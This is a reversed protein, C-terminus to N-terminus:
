TSSSIYTRSLTSSPSSLHLINFFSTRYPRVCLFLLRGLSPDRMRSPPNTRRCLHDLSQRAPQRPYHAISWIDLFTLKQTSKVRRCVLGSQLHSQSPPPSILKRPRTNESQKYLYSTPLPCPSGLAPCPLALCPLLSSRRSTPAKSILDVVEM